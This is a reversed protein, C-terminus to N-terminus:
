WDNSSNFSVSSMEYIKKVEDINDQLDTFCEFILDYILTRCVHSCKLVPIYFM